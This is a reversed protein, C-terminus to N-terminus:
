RQMGYIICEGYCLRIYRSGDENKLDLDLVALVLKKVFRKKLEKFAEEQKETWIWKKDKKVMNYLPRAITM